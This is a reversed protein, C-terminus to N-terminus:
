ELKRPLLDLKATQVTERTALREPTNDKLHRAARLRRSARLAEIDGGTLEYQNDYYRPPKKKKGEVIVFDDRYTEDRYRDFWKSGIGPRRSMTTYEPKVNHLSVTGDANITTRKYHQDAPPGTQKKLIYRAVYAASDYTLDGIIVWGLQWIDELERSTYLRDGQANKKYFTRSQTFDLGFIAAHLHPRLTTPGYEGCHFFRFPGHRKRLRKAFLQWDRVNLSQDEPLHENDYTLTLFCNQDHFQAEHLCRIAWQQSRDMRCGICQGCAVEVLGEGLAQGFAHPTNRPFRVIGDANRIGRIPHFCPM